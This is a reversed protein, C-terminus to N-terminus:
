AAQLLFFTLSHYKPVKISVTGCINFAAISNTTICKVLNM